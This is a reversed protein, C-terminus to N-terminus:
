HTFVLISRETKDGLTWLCSSLLVIPVMGHNLWEFRFWLQNISFLSNSWTASQSYHSMASFSTVIPYLLALCLPGQVLLLVVLQLLLIKVVVNPLLTGFSM